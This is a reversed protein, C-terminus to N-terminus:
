HSDRPLGIKQAIAQYKTANKLVMGEDFQDVIGRQIEQWPTQSAPYPYGGEAALAEKRQQLEAEDMLINVEAKNLDVRLRDGTRLLAIAGMAAAEPAGNLISPSGSTGSQRGDGICPLSTIGKKILYAPPQMNVVEAGGPYGIPGTGRMVLITNEDIGEAPDDIRHHYDEPGDFVIVKGEFADPEDPNSLYRNRFEESIVSTKMIASNFLNGTLNIFGANEMMPNAVTKIVDENANKAQGCNDGMTKGNATLASPHPLLNAKMLEMVVAPVGGARSYDEGLYEGAPMLNVLLPIKHGLQQWDDNTLPVGLHRAIANLHIPANTSGGIASNIVIANEFAERTMIDSPKLDENVMEVIRKGTEYSMQGRERYPAPIAASGPLQMGLAEALSNMTTATGMTNCYGVSPASAAAADMFEDYDIEGASLKERMKWIVTGSGAREGKWWGNLMPGVSLAIAPINVTAAAMLMAPTTKDCGITLVVGDIPYGYLVEVCSLYSLNRDLAATPRKGTEQIPHVPFEIPIGGMAIIGDRVRKALEIHHRNCPSLDSGTQAIGIIPKGSQLEERTLGFNLYRELYLATMGPNDPNNFWDQSRLRKPAKNM